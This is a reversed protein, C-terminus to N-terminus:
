TNINLSIGMNQCIIIFEKEFQKMEKRDDNQFELITGYRHGEIGWKDFSDYLLPLRRHLKGKLFRRYARRHEAMRVNLYMQTMGVYIKGEPNIIYYVKGGKDARRYKYHIANVKSRNNVQWKAHHEPNIETRFKNNDSKNCAKCKLQLGDASAARKSFETTEKTEGCGNCEKYNAM